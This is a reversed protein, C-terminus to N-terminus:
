SILQAFNAMSAKFRPSVVMIRGLPMRLSEHANPRLHNDNLSVANTSAIVTICRVLNLEEYVITFRELTNELPQNRGSIQRAYGTSFSCPYHFGAFSSQGYHSLLPRFSLQQCLRFLANPCHEIITDPTV